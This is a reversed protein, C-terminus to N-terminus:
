RTALVRVDRVDGIAGHHDHTGFVSLDDRCEIETLQTTAVDARVLRTGRGVSRDDEDGLNRGHLQVLDHDILFVFRPHERAFEIERREARPGNTRCEAGITLAGVDRDAWGRVADGYHVDGRHREHGRGPDIANQGGGAVNL